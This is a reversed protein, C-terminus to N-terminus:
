WEIERLKEDAQEQEGVRALEYADRLTCAVGALRELTAMTGVRKLRWSGGLFAFKDGVIRMHKAIAQHFAETGVPTPVDPIAVEPSAPVPICRAKGHDCHQRECDPRREHPRRHDGEATYCCVAFCHQYDECIVLEPAPKSPSSLDVPIAGARVMGDMLKKQFAVRAEDDVPAFQQTAKCTPDAQHDLETPVPICTSGDYCTLSCAETREHPMRHSLHGPREGCEAVCTEWASCRVLEPAPKEPEPAPVPQCIVGGDRCPLNCQAERVHPVRHTVCNTCNAYSPCRVLRPVPHAEPKSEPVAPTAQKRVDRIRVDSADINGPVPMSTIPGVPRFPEKPREADRHDDVTMKNHKITWGQLLDVRSRENELARVRQQLDAIEQHHCTELTALREQLGAIQAEAVMYALKNAEFHRTQKAELAAVRKELAEMSRGLGGILELQADLRVNDEVPM